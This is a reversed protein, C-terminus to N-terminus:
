ERLNGDQDQEVEEHELPATGSLPTEKVINGDKDRFVLTGSIVVGAKAAVEQM